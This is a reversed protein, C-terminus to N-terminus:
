ATIDIGARFWRGAGPSAPAAVAGLEPAAQAEAAIRGPRGGGGGGQHRASSQQQGDLQFSLARGDTPVGAQTLAQHLHSQDRLMLALTEPRQVSVVVQTPADPPHDVRIAVHGLSPPDLRVM